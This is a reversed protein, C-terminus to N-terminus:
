KKRQEDQRRAEHLFSQLAAKVACVKEREAANLDDTGFKTRIIAAAEAIRGMPTSAIPGDLAVNMRDVYYIIRHRVELADAKSLEPQALLMIDDLLRIPNPFMAKSKSLRRHCQKAMILPKATYQFDSVPPQRRLFPAMSVGTVAMGDMTDLMREVIRIDRPHMTDRRNELQERLAAGKENLADIQSKITSTSVETGRVHEETMVTSM